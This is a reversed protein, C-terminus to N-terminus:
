SRRRVTSRSPSSGSKGGRRVPQESSADISGQLLQGLMEVARGHGTTSGILSDLVVLARLAYVLVVLGEADDRSMAGAEDASALLESVLVERARPSQPSVKRGITEPNNVVIATAELWVKGWGTTRHDTALIDRMDAYYNDMFTADTVYRAKQRRVVVETLHDLVEIMLRDLSGFHYHVLAQNVGAERAVKRTSIGAAGEVRLLRWAARLIAERTTMEAEGGDTLADRMSAITGDEGEAPEEEVPAVARDPFPAAAASRKM